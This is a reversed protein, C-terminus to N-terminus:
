LSIVMFALVCVCVCVCMCIKNVTAHLRPSVNPLVSIYSVSIKNMLTPYRKQNIYIKRSIKSYLNIIKEMTDVMNTNSRGCNNKNELLLM